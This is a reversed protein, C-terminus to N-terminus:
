NINLKIKKNDHIDKTSTLKPRLNTLSTFRLKKIKHNLASIEPHTQIDKESMHTKIIEEQTQRNRKKKLSEIRKKDSM